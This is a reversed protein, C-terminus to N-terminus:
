TCSMGAATTYGGGVKLRELVGQHCKKFDTSNTFLLSPPPSNHSRHFTRWRQCGLGPHRQPKLGQLNYLSCNREAWGSCLTRLPRKGARRIWPASRVGAEACSSSCRGPSPSGVQSTPEGARGAWVCWSPGPSVPAWVVSTTRDQLLHSVPATGLVHLHGSVEWRHCQHPCVQPRKRPVQTGLKPVTLWPWSGRELQPRSLLWPSSGGEGGLAGHSM